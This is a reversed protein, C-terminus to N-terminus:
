SAGARKEVAALVRVADDLLRPSALARAREKELGLSELERQPARLAEEPSGYHEMIKQAPRLCDALVLNLAVWCARRDAISRM